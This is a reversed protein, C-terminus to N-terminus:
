VIKKGYKEALALLKQYEPEQEIRHQNTIKNLSEDSWTNNHIRSMIQQIMVARVLYHQKSVPDVTTRNLRDFHNYLHNLEDLLEFMNFQSHIM